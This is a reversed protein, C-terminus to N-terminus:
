PMLFQNTVIAQRALVTPLNTTVREAHGDLFLLNGTASPMKPHLERTWTVASSNTLLLLGPKTAVKKVQLHRDGGLVTSAPRNTIAILAIFYSVNTNNLGAYSETPQRTKDSPCWFTRPPNLNTLTLFHDAVIGNPLLEM